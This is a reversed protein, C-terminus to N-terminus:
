KYILFGSVLPILTAPVLPPTPRVYQVVGRWRLTTERPAGDKGEDKGGRKESHTILVRLTYTEAAGRLKCPCSIHYIVYDLNLILAAAQFAVRSGILHALASCYIFLGVNM